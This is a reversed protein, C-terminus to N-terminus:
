MNAEWFAAADKLWGEALTGTGLGFGHPLGTYSHFETPIGYSELTNLRSQMTRWDAIADSTGCGTRPLLSAAPLLAAPKRIQM